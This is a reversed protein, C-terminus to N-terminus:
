RVSAIKDRRVPWRANRQSCVSCHCCKALGECGTPFQPAVGPFSTQLPDVGAQQSLGGSKCILLRSHQTSRGLEAMLPREIAARFLRRNPVASVNM